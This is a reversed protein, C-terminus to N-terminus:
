KGLVSVILLTLFLFFLSQYFVVSTVQSAAKLSHQILKLVLKRNFYTEHLKDGGHIAEYLNDNFKDLEKRLEESAKLASRASSWAGALMGSIMVSCVIAITIRM